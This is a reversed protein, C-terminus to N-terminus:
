GITDMASGNLLNALATTLQVHAFPKQLLVSNPVGYASWKAASDGTMYIVPIGPCLERARQAVDWGNAKGPTRIDTVLACFRDASEELESIAMDATVVSACAFGSDALLDEIGLILLPEDEVVLVLLKADNM